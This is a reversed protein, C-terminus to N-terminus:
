WAALLVVESKSRSWAVDLGPFCPVGAYGTKCFTLLSCARKLGSPTVGRSAEPRAKLVAFVHPGNPLLLRLSNTALTLVASNQLFSALMGAGRRVCPSCPAPTGGAAQLVSCVLGSIRVYAPGSPRPMRGWKCAWM